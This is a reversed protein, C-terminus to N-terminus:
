AVKRAVLAIVRGIIELDEEDVEPQAPTTNNDSLVRIQKTKINVSIRKVWADDGVRIAYIGERSLRRQTRDILVWDGDFFTGQMSDGAVRVIALESPLAKSLGNLWQTEVMWYGMPEPHDSVLSGPGMSFRADFRGIATFGDDSEPMKVPNDGDEVTVGALLMIDSRSIGKAGFIPVLSRVLDLPLYPKKFKDEYSAYTSKPRKLADAVEQVSLEAQERLRKLGTAAKSVEMAGDTRFSRVADM